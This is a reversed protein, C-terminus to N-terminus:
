HRKATKGREYDMVHYKTASRCTYVGQALKDSSGNICRQRPQMPARAPLHM